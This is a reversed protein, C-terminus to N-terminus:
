GMILSHLQLMPQVQPPFGLIKGPFNCLVEPSQQGKLLAPVCVRVFGFWVLWGFLDVHM